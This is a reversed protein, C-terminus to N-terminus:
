AVKLCPFIIMKVDMYDIILLLAFVPIFQDGARGYLRHDVFFYSLIATYECDICNQDSFLILPNWRINMQTILGHEATM